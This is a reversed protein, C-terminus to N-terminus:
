RDTVERAWSITEEVPRDNVIRDRAIGAPSATAMAFPLNRLEGARHDRGDM